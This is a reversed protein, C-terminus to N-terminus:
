KIFRIRRNYLRVVLSLNIIECCKNNLLWKYLCPCYYFIYDCERSLLLSPPLFLSFTGRAYLININIHMCKYKNIRILIICVLHSRPKADRWIAVLEGHTAKGWNWDLAYIFDIAVTEIRCQVNYFFFTQLAIFMSFKVNWGWFCYRTCHVSFVM